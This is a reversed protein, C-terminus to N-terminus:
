KKTGKKYLGGILSGYGGVAGTVKNIDSRGEKALSAMASDAAEMKGQAMRLFITWIKIEYHIPYFFLLMAVGVILLGLLIAGYEIIKDVLWTLADWLWEGISKLWEGIGVLTDWAADILNRVFSYTADVFNRINEYLIRSVSTGTSAELIYTVIPGGTIPSTAISILYIFLTDWWSDKTFSQEKIIWPKNVDVDSPGVISGTTSLQYASYLNMFTFTKIDGFQTLMTWNQITNDMLAMSLFSSSQTVDVTQFLFKVNQNWDSMLVVQVLDQSIDNPVSITTSSTGAIYNYYKHSPISWSFPSSITFAQVSVTFSATQNETWFPIIISHYDNTNNLRAWTYFTVSDGAHLYKEFGAFGMSLGSRFDFSYGLDLALATTRISVSGGSPIYRTVNTSAIGDSCVDNPSLYVKLRADAIYKVNMSILYLQDPVVPARVMLYGRNSMTWFDDGDTYPSTYDSSVYFAMQTETHTFSVVPWSGDDVVSYDGSATLTHITLAWQSIQDDFYIPMRIVFASAGSMIQKSTLKFEWTLLAYSTATMVENFKFLSEETSGGIWLGEPIPDWTNYNTRATDNAVNVVEDYGDQHESRADLTTSQTETSTASVFQPVIMMAIALVAVFQLVFKSNM